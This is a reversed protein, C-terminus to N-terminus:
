EPVPWSSSLGVWTILGLESPHHQPCNSSLQPCHHQPSASLGLTEGLLVPGVPCPCTALTVAPTIWKLLDFSIQFCRGCAAQLRRRLSSGRQHLSPSPVTKSVQSDLISPHIDKDKQTHLGTPSLLVKTQLNLM